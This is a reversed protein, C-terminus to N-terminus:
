DARSPNESPPPELGKAGRRLRHGLRVGRAAASVIDSLDAVVAPDRAELLALEATTKITALVNNLDHAVSLALGELEHESWGQVAVILGEIAEVDGSAGRVAYGHERVSVARGDVRRLRYNLTFPEGTRVAGQVTDLVRARDDDHVIRGFSVARNGVLDGAEFGTLTRCGLSMFEVTRDPDPRCRFVVAALAGLVRRLFEDGTLFGAGLPHSSLEVAGKPRRKKEPMM